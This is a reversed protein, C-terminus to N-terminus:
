RALLPSSVEFASIEWPRDGLRYMTMTIKGDGKQFHATAYLNVLTYGNRIRSSSASFPECTKLNGLRDAYLAVRQRNEGETTSDKFGPSSRSWLADANWPIAIASIDDTAAAEAEGDVKSFTKYLFLALGGFILVFMVVGVAVWRVM